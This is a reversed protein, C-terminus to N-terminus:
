EIEEITNGEAVWALIAKYYRNNTDEPVTRIIGPNSIFTVEYNYQVSDDQIMSNNDRNWTYRKVTHFDM